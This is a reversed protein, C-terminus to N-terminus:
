PVHPPEGDELDIGLVRPRESDLWQQAQIEPRSVDSRASQRAALDHAYAQHYEASHEPNQAVWLLWAWLKGLPRGQGSARSGPRAGSSPKCTRSLTANCCACCARMDWVGEAGMSLRIYGVGSPMQLRPWGDDRCRRERLRAAPPVDAPEADEWVLISSKAWTGSNIM